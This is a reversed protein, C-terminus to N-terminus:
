AVGAPEGRARAKEAVRRDYAAQTADGAGPADGREAARVEAEIRYYTLIDAIQRSSYLSTVQELTLGLRDWLAERV